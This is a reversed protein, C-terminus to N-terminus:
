HAVYSTSLSTSTLPPANSRQHRAVRHPETSSADADCWRSPVQGYREASHNRYRGQRSWGDSVLMGLMSGWGVKLSGLGGQGM